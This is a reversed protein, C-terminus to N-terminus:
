CSQILLIILAMQPPPPSFIEREGWRWLRRESLAGGRGGGGSGERQSKDDGVKVCALVLLYFKLFKIKSIEFFCLNVLELWM